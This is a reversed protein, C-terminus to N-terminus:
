WRHPPSIGDGIFLCAFRQSANAKGGSAAYGFSELWPLAVTAGLGKLLVRRSIKSKM